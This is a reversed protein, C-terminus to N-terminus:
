GASMACKRTGSTGLAAVSSRGGVGRQEVRGEGEAWGAAGWGGVTHALGHSSTVCRLISSGMIQKLFVQKEELARAGDAGRRRRGEERM